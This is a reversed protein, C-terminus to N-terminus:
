ENGERGFLADLAEICGAEPRGPHIGPRFTASAPGPLGAGRLFVYFIGGFSTDYRYGPLTRRLWRHVALAYLHAQLAYAHRHMEADLAAPRYAHADTGLFNSKWDIIYWRGAHEFVLDIFGRLFGSWHAARPASAGRTGATGATGAAGPLLGVQEFLRRSDVGRGELQFELERVQRWRPVGALALTSGDAAHLPTRVVEELWAAVEPADTQPYGCRALWTAAASPEIPADFAAEELIGHLCVGAQPGAPFRFRISAAPDVAVAGARGDPAMAVAAEGSGGEDGAAASADDDDAAVRSGSETGAPDIVDANPWEQGALEDGGTWAAALASFSTTIAAAPIPVRESRATLRAAADIALSRAPVPLGPAGSLVRRADDGANMGDFRREARAMEAAEVVAVAGPHRVDARARWWTVATRVGQPDVEPVPEDPTAVADHLLWKLPRDASTTTAGWFLYCRQGARTLAVYLTRLQEIEIATIAQRRTQEDPALDLVARWDSTSARASAGPADAAGGQGPSRGPATKLDAERDAECGETGNREHVVCTGPASPKRGSWAFPVFVVPFELGKSKHVTLIRVLNEDSELRLERSDEDMGGSRARLRSWADLGRGPDTRAAEDDALLAILHHLNTLRREGDTLGALRPGSGFAHLLPRLAALPGHELWRARAEVFRAGLRALQAPNRELAALADADHGLLTTLLASRLRGPETCDDIAAVVRMLEASELTDLVSDRSIGAAGIGVKALARKIQGGQRRTQVLVAIDMPQLAREGLRVASELLRLIEAVCAQTAQWQAQPAQLGAQSDGAELLVVTMPARTTGGSFDAGTLGARSRAGVAAPTFDIGDIRFPDRVDFLANVAQVLGAASRQNEGLRHIRRAHHHASLWAHVDAGRFSYIAQKPDGVLILANGSEGTGAEVSEAGASEAEGGYVRRLIDWQLPDTDQCEDVFAVPQRTRLAAALAAGSVPDALAEHVLRLLDDFALSSARALDDTRTRHLDQVIGSAASVALAAAQVGIELLAECAAPIPSVPVAKDFRALSFFELAKKPLPALPEACYQRLEALRKPRSAKHFKTGSVHGRQDMWALLEGDDAAVAEALAARATSARPALVRWDIVAPRVAALPHALMKEVAQTLSDPDVGALAFLELHALPAALVERRWWEAVRRSVRDHDGAGIPLGRPVGIALANEDIIRQCWAHITHVSLEDIGALAIRLRDRARVAADEDLRAAYELCFPDDVLLPQERVADLRADLVDLLQALRTCIRESLEAAAANTFTVVLIQELALEKEVLARVVLGTITWTKGTGADAELLQIGDFIGDALVPHGTLISTGQETLTNTGQGTLTGAGM